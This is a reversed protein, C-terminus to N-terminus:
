TCSQYVDYTLQATRQWSFHRARESARAVLDRRFSPDNAVRKLQAVLTEPETPSFTDGGSGLIEPLSTAEAALIPCAFSMAECLQLGFGEYLSPYVFVLARRYLAALTADSVFGTLRVRGQPMSAVIASVSSSPQNGVLVLTVGELAAADFARVLFDVNKRPDFGGAYLVFAGRINLGELLGEDASDPGAHAELESAEHIVAIKSAPISFHKILDSKAHNSVTIVRTATHRAAWFSARVMHERLSVAETSPAFAVDIADHLTLVRPCHALAPLGFNAPAHLLDVRERVCALPLWGQEWIVYPMPPSQVVRFSGPLLQALYEGNLPQDSFLVLDSGLEPLHRLLQLAYRTWGRIQPAALARANFGIRM